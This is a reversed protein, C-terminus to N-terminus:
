AAGQWPVLVNSLRALGSNFCIGLAATVALGAYMEETRMTEWASWILAGIGSRATVLEVAITVVLCSNLALRAGALVFPLSGPLVVRSLLKWPGAGYNEAVEFYIRRIQLVGAMANVLMPFFAALAAVAVKSANGLGFLIMFLPLLAVKPLPHVAAVLPDGIRRLWRSAGMGLGLILGAVGGILFGGVLRVLTAATAETLRGDSVMAVGTRLVFSPPPFFLRSILGARALFEWLVLMAGATLLAPLGDHARCGPKTGGSSTM